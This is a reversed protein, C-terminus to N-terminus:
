AKIIKYGIGNRLVLLTFVHCYPNSNIYYTIMFVEFVWYSAILLRNLFHIDKYLQTLNAGKSELTLKKAKTLEITM